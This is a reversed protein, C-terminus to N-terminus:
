KRTLSQTLMYSVAAHIDIDSLNSLGGRAPMKNHGHIASTVLEAVGKPLRPLWAEKDGIKPAGGVGERHCNGCAANVNDEGSGHAEKAYPKQPDPTKGGSVMYAIARTMELDTVAAKGGHAPMKRLGEMSSHLLRALGYKARPAWDASNGVRPAGDKGEGHCSACVSDVVEKGSREAAAAVSGGVLLGFAIALHIKSLVAPRQSGLTMM